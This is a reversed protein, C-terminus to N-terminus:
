LASSAATITHFVFWYLHQSAQLPECMIYVGDFGMIRHLVYIAVM